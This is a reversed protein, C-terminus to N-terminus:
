NLYAYLTPRGRAGPIRVRERPANRPQPTRSLWTLLGLVVFTTFVLPGVAPISVPEASLACCAPLEGHQAAQSMEVDMSSPAMAMGVTTLLPLQLVCVSLALLVLLARAKSM